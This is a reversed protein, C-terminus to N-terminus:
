FRERYKCNCSALGDQIDNALLLLNGPRRREHSQRTLDAHGKRKINQEGHKKSRSRGQPYYITSRSRDGWLLNNLVKMVSLSTKLMSKSFSALLDFHQKYTLFCLCHKTNIVYFELLFTFTLTWVADKNLVKNLIASDPM